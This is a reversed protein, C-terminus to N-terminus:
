CGKGRTDPRPFVPSHLPPVRKGPASIVRARPRRRTFRAHQLGAARLPGGRTRGGWIRTYLRSASRQREFSPFASPSKVHTLRLSLGGLRMTLPLMSLLYTQTALPTQHGCCSGKRGRGGAQGARARERQLECEATRVRGVQSCGRDWLCQRQSSPSCLRTNPLLQVSSHRQRAESVGHSPQRKLWKTSATPPLDLSVM